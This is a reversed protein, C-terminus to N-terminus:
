VSMFAMAYEMSAHLAQCSLNRRAVVSSNFIDFYIIYIFLFLFDIM